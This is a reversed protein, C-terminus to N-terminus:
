NFMPRGVTDNNGIKFGLAEVNLNDVIKDIVRVESNSGVYDELCEIKVQSRDIGLLYNM